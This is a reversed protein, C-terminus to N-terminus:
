YETIVSQRTSVTNLLGDVGTHSVTGLMGGVGPHQSTRGPAMVEKQTKMNKIGGAEAIKRSYKNISPAFTNQAEVQKTRTEKKAMKKAHMLEMKEAYQKNFDNLDLKQGPRHVNKRALEEQERVEKEQLEAQRRLKAM